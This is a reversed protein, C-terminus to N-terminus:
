SLRRQKKSHHPDGKRDRRGVAQDGKILEDVREAADRRVQGGRVGHHETAAPLDMESRRKAVSETQRQESAPRAPQTTSRTRRDSRSAAM